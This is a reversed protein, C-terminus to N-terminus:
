LRVLKVNSVGELKLLENMAAAPIDSDVNMVTLADAGVASRGLSVGAINVDYKALIAGVRALMGPRDVNSYILLHGEPKVEFRFQDMRVLRVTSSGFVTGAFERDERETSCRLQLLNTFTEGGRERQENVVLGMESALFPANVFNVPEPLLHSLIGKLIGAKLLELSSGVLDGSAGITIRKLKGPIVQAALGGLKEALSLYPKVEENMTLQLAAGNVVGVYGRGKLADAVQHAIQIAVKEQAEETSAGLHPTAIVREHALLPNNKPPEVEFVDLAGGGVHGSQISRLLAGEDVIGGRACNIVRVGRKCKALTEDNLLGRTENTLPTHLTIFDSRRYLEDLSVLEIGLKLAVDTSLVPDYGIVNMSMGQCRVAVERGIKGLGVIGITKEFVESGTYKKRDWQGKQLSAHAQPINRALSLMMSVTHEAASITNGGPTNMVLIGKRTAAELDINDVGTGARGIVKMTAAHGIVDANVKTASRVVLADYEGIISKLEDGSVGPRFDVSFGEDTLIDLCRKELNESVLVRM